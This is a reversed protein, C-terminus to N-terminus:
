AASAFLRNIRMVTNPAVGFRKAIGRVGPRGPVAPAKRIREETESSIRAPGTAKRRERGQAARRPGTEQILPREFEAFVGMM